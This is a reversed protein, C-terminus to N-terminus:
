VVEGDATEFVAIREIAGSSLPYWCYQSEDWHICVAHQNAAAVTGEEQDPIWCVRDGKAFPRTEPYPRPSLCRGPLPVGFLLDASM